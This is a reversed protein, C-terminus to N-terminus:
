GFLHHSELSGGRLLNLDARKQSIVCRVATLGWRRKPVVYGDWGWPYFFRSSPVSTGFRRYAIVVTRQTIDWLLASRLHCQSILIRHNMAALVFEMSFELTYELRWTPQYLYARVSQSQFHLCLLGGVRRYSDVALIHFLGSSKIQWLKM